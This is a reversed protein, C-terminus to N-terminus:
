VIRSFRSYPILIKWFAHFPTKIINSWCIDFCNSVDFRQFKSIRFFDSKPDIPTQPAIKITFIIFLIAWFSRLIIRSWKPNIVIRNWWKSFGSVWWKRLKEIKPRPELDWFWYYKKKTVSPYRLCIVFLGSESENIIKPLRLIESIWFLFTRLSPYRVIWAIRRFLEQVDQIHSWYRESFM